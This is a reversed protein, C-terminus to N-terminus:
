DASLADSPDRIAILSKVFPGVREALLEAGPFYAGLQSRGLLEVGMADRLATERDKVVRYSGVPWRTVLRAQFSLPLHQMAPMLFHPEIPFYRYPTQVWYRPASRRVLAAYRERRWHGGVHEIVSNSYVLDFSGLDLPDCADGHVSTMWPELPEPQGDLNLLTLHRPRVGADAWARAYGGVDLVRMEEIEPFRAAFTAWRKRRMSEGVTHQDPVSICGPRRRAAASLHQAPM